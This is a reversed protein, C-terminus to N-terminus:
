DLTLPCPSPSLEQIEGYGGELVHLPGRQVCTFSDTGSLVQATPILFYSNTRDTVAM